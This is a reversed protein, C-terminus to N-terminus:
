MIYIYVCYILINLFIWSRFTFVKLRFDRRFSFQPWESTEGVLLGCWYPGGFLNGEQLHDGIHGINQSNIQCVILCRIEHYVYCIM